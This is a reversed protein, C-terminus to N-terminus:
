PWALKWGSNKKELWPSATFATNGEPRIREKGYVPRGTRARLEELACDVHVELFRGEPFLARVADWDVEGRFTRLPRNLAEPGEAM